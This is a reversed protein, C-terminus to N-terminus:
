SARRKTRRAVRSNHSKELYARFWVLYAQKEYVRKGNLTVGGPGDGRSDMNALTEAKLGGGIVTDMVEEVRRRPFYDPLLTELKQIIADIFTNESM